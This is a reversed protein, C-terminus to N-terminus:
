AIKATSLALIAATESRLIQAGLSVPKIFEHTSLFDKEEITFGGEPGILFAYPAGSLANKLLPSDDREICAYITINNKWDNTLGEIKQPGHLVPIDLRECQEAAEIIQTQIREENIQRNETNQTLVPHLHTVGLEVAKEVLFDMRAKRIPAFLLHIEPTTKTQEAIQERINAQADKKSITSLAALWEGDHGNFLRLEDGPQKRIVNKLYHAQEKSFCLNGNEQLEQDVYLRPLKIYDNKSM